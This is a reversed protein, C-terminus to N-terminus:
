RVDVPGICNIVGAHYNQAMKEISFFSASQVCGEHLLNRSQQSDLLKLVASVYGDVSNSTSISNGADLYSYEPAHFEWNTTIIPVGMAFSDVAILGIRGPNLLAFCVKSLGIKIRNDAEGHFIVREPIKEILSRDLSDPSFILLKTDPVAQNIQKFAEMLFGIRKESGLSGIFAFVIDSKVLNFEQRFLMDTPTEYKEIGNILEQTDISNNLVTIRDLPVGNKNVSIACSETYALFFDSKRMLLNKLLREFRSISKTPTDGHGWFAFAKPKFVFLFMYTLFNKLGFECIVLQAKFNERNMERFHFERGLLSIKFTLCEVINKTMESEAKYLQNRGKTAFILYHIGDREGLEFLRRFFPERYNPIRTQHIIVKRWQNM